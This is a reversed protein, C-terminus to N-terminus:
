GESWVKEIIDAIQPFTLGNDNLGALCEVGAKMQVLVGVPLVGVNDLLDNLPNDDGLVRDSQLESDRGNNLRGQIESLVGLCCYKGDACM